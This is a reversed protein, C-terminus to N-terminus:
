ETTGWEPKREAVQEDPGSDGSVGTFL